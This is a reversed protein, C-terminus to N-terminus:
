AKKLFSTQKFHIQKCNSEDTLWHATETATETACDSLLQPHRPKWGRM